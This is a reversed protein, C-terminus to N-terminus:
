VFRSGVFDMSNLYSIIKEELTNGKCALVDYEFVVRGDYKNNILFLIGKLIQNWHEDDEFIPKHDFGLDYDYSYTHLHVNSILPILNTDLDTINGGDIIEHGIDYTMYLNENNCVINKIDDKNLRDIDLSMDNLNELSIQVKNNDIHDIVYNMYDTTLKISEDKDNGSLPHMVVNIKYPFLDSINELVHMYKIQKDLNMGSNGHVEFILNEKQCEHALEILYNLEDKNDYNIHIEFGKAHKSNTKMITVLDHPTFEMFKYNVSMLEKM